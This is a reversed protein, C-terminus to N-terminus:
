VRQSESSRSWRLARRQLLTFGVGLALMMLGILAASGTGSGTNPLAPVPAM